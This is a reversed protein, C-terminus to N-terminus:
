DDRQDRELFRLWFLVDDDDDDDDRETERDRPRNERVFKPPARFISSPFFLTERTDSYRYQKCM